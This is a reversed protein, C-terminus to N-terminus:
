ISNKFNEMAELIIKELDLFEERVGDQYVINQSINKKSIFENDPFIIWAPNYGFGYYYIILKISSHSIRGREINILTSYSIDLKEIISNRSFKSEGKDKVGDNELLEERIERLRTGIYYFDKAKWANITDINKM